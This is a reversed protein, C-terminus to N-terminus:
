AEGFALNSAFDDIADSVVRPAEAPMLHGIGPLRVDRSGPIDRAFHQGDVLDSSLVLTPTTIHGIEASRDPQDTNAFDIFTDRGGPSSTLFHVRDVMVDDVATSGPGVLGSLNRATAGRSGLRRIVPRLLPVRALRMILPVTKDPYGTANMLVLGRLRAPQMLAYTWAIQGGFSHGALIFEGPVHADLFKWLMSVYAGMSYDRDPRPGTVGFGPLDIRIVEFRTILRQTIDDFIHLSAGSGHLLVIFPGSGARTFHVNMGDLQAFNSTTDTLKM